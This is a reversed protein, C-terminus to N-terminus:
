PSEEEIAPRLNRFWPSTVYALIMGRMGESDQAASALAQAHCTFDDTELVGLAYRSYHYAMCEAVVPDNALVEALDVAGTVSVTPGHPLSFEAATDIPQGNDTTRSRGLWDLGEFAFGIGDMPAHCGACSPDSFHAELRERLTAGAPAPPLMTSVGPPPPAPPNCLLRDLVARGRLTPSTVEAHALAAMVGPLTLLGARKTPDLLAEDGEVGAVDEGYISRLAPDAPVRNSTLTDALSAGERIKAALYEAPQRRVAERTPEPLAFFDPRSTIDDLHDLELWQDVFDTIGRVFRPDDIMRLAEERIGSETALRGDSASALLDTDPPGAWLTFALRTAVAYGDLEGSDTLPELAYLFQPSQMLGRLMWNVGTENGGEAVGADYLSQYTSRTSADLPRRFLRLAVDDLLWAACETACQPDALLEATALDAVMEANFMLTRAGTSDVATSTNARYGILEEDALPVDVEVGLIDEAAAELQPRTLRRLPVPAGVQPPTDCITMLPGPDRPGAAQVEDGSCGSLLLGVSLLSSGATKFLSSIM